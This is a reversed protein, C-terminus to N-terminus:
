SFLYPLAPLRFFSPDLSSDRKLEIGYMVGCLQVQWSVSGGKQVELGM